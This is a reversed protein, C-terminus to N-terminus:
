EYKHILVYLFVFVIWYITAIRESFSSWEYIKNILSILEDM